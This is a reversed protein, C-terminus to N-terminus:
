PSDDPYGLFQANDYESPLTKSKINKLKEGNWRYYSRVFKKPCCLGGDGASRTYEEIVLIQDKVAIRRLGGEARDGTEHQWLLAPRESKMSYVFVCGVFRNFISPGAITIIAEERNDGTLDVFSSDELELNLNKIGTREDEDIEFKGDRLTVERVSSPSKLYSPYWPYTFNKFDVDQILGSRKNQSSSFPIQNSPSNATQIPSPSPIASSAPHPDRGIGSLPNESSCSVNLM